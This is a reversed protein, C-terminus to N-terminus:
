VLTRNPLARYNWQPLVTDFVILMNAKFDEAVKRGTQYVKEIIEVVVKLGKSTKTKEMLAKVLALSTFIVGQCARTVHPFLRHEIPNYKSCYPPYHAIRIEIGLEDALKQLDEKFIYHHSHNSGGGDCLGLIATANPYIARGYQYWWSRICDCAFQSTDKSLGLHLYGINLQLDYIGHPIIIGEAESNFDHDYTHLEQLTYLHGDRYFNGLYEKKKTDFSIIPNGAARFEAKLAKIKTFQEDRHAVSKLTQKKQAKRRRYHHKRLLKRVVSKSVRVQYHRELLGAIEHPTLDTWVVQDDMPDGATHEKLVELFQADIDPHNEDYGNRGGGPKRLSAEYQSQEPLEALDDLGRSVTKESCGLLEAIYSQGGHGLKLAEIAAYRRRDKESLTAYYKKMAREIEPNYPLMM